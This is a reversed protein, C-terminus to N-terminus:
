DYAQQCAQQVQGCSQEAHEYRGSALGSHPIAALDSHISLPPFSTQQFSQYDQVALAAPRLGHLLYQM